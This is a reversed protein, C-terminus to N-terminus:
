KHDHSKFLFDASYESPHVSSLVFLGVSQHVYIDSINTDKFFIFIMAFNQYKDHLCDSVLFLRIICINKWVM